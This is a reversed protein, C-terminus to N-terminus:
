EAVAFFSKRFFNRKSQGSHEHQGARRNQIKSGCTEQASDLQQYVTRDLARAAARVFHKQLCMAGVNLWAASSLTGGRVCRFCWCSFSGGM